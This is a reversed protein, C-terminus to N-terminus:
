ILYTKEESDFPRSSTSVSLGHEKEMRVWINMQVVDKTHKYNPGNSLNLGKRMTAARRNRKAM